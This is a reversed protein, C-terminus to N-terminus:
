DHDEDYRYYQGDRWYGNHHHHRPYWQGDRWVYGHSEYWERDHGNSEGRYWQGDHWVYGHHEYWERDHGGPIAPVTVTIQAFAGSAAFVALLFPLILRKM